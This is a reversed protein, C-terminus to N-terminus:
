RFVRQTLSAAIGIVGLATVLEFHDINALLSAQQALQQALQATAAQMAGAPPLAGSLAHELQERLAVYIPSDAIFQTNLANYHVSTRWQQGITALTIGLSIGIQALMNKIQQAHSFVTENHDLERFTQMATIPLVTLLFISNLALAPLIYTWLDASPTMRSMLTGFLSLAIFGTVLFKKPAPHKPLIRSVAFWTLLAVSSGLASFHGVTEWSYALSRQLTVPIVYNNAGLMIYAFLFVGLGFLYRLQLLERVYLLPRAARHQQHLWIAFGVAAALLGLVILAFDGYFDYCLRQLSYLLAFSSGALLLQQGPQWDSPTDANALAAPPLTISALTFAVVGLGALLWYIASWTENAVALSALWPALAIGAALGSALFKIGTFRKPGALQHHIIMRSSTFMAGGGVAMVLRGVLFSTFDVSLACILAGASATALCLQMFTRGGVREVFWRQMSIALVAVSAYTAAILSFDEPSVSIEGMIPGAAFATMGSQLYEFLSLSLITPYLLLGRIRTNM